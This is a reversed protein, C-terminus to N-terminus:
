VHCLAAAFWALVEWVQTAGQIAEQESLNLLAAAKQVNIYTYAQGMLALMSDRYSEILAAM